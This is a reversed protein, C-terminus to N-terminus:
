SRLSVITYIVQLQVSITIMYDVHATGARKRPPLRGSFTESRARHHAFDSLFASPFSLFFFFVTIMKQPTFCFYGICLYHATTTRIIIVITIIMIVTYYNVVHIVIGVM